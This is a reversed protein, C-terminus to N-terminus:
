FSFAQLFSSDLYLLLPRAPHRPNAFGVLGFLGSIKVIALPRRTGKVAM